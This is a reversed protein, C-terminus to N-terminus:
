QLLSCFLSLLTSSLVPPSLGTHDYRHRVIQAELGLPDPWIAVFLMPAPAPAHVAVKAPSVDVAVTGTCHGCSGREPHEKSDDGANCSKEGADPPQSHCHSPASPPLNAEGPVVSVPSDVCACVSNALGVVVAVLIALARAM